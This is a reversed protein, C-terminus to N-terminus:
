KKVKILSAALVIGVLLLILIVILITMCKDKSNEILRTVKRKAADMRGTTRDVHDSLDDLKRGHEAITDGMERGMVGLKKVSHGLVDLEDDQQRMIQLQAQDQGEIFRANEKAVVEDLKAYRSGAAGGDRKKLLL